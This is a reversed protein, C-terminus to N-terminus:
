VYLPHNAIILNNSIFHFAPSVSFTCSLSPRVSAGAASLYEVRWRSKSYFRPVFPFIFIETWSNMSRRWDLVDSYIWFSLFPYTVVFFLASPSSKTTAIVATSTLFFRLLTPYFSFCVLSLSLCINSWSRLRILVCHKDLHEVSKFTLKLGNFCDYNIDAFDSANISVRICIEVTLFFNCLHFIFM